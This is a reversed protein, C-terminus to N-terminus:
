WRQTVGKNCKCYHMETHGIRLSCKKRCFSNPCKEGCLPLVSVTAVQTNRYSDIDDIVECKMNPCYNGIGEGKILKTKCSPCHKKRLATM